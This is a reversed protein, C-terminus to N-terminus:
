RNSHLTRNDAYLATTREFVNRFRLDSGDERNFHLTLFFGAHLLYCTSSQFEVSTESSSKAEM